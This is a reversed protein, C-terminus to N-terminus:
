QYSDGNSVAVKTFLMESDTFIWFVAIYVDGEVLCLHVPMHAVGEALITLIHSPVFCPVSVWVGKKHYFKLCSAKVCCGYAM